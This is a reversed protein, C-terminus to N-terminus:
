LKPLLDVFSVKGANYNFDKTSPEVAASVNQWPANEFLVLFSRCRLILIKGQVTFYM